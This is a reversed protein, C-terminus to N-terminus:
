GFEPGLIAYQSEPKGPFQNNGRYMRVFPRLESFGISELWSRWSENHHSVDLIVSRNGCRRLAASALDKAVDTDIAVVPGIHTSRFGARGFCYGKLQTGTSVKFALEPAGEYMWSLLTNRRAGFAKEDFARVNEWDDPTLPTATPLSILQGSNLAGAFMRSLPYEDEFGLKIYVERGAPTADLKVCGENKLISLAQELLRLGIGKKRHVPDVLVMGIWAFRHGYRVTAVTGVVNGEENLCVRNAEPDLSLFMEWDRSLQNWGASRCLSLGAPIDTREMKRFTM